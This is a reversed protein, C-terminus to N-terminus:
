NKPLPKLGKAIAIMTENTLGDLLTNVVWYSAGNEEFAVMHLHSGNYYLKYERGRIRRKLTPGELVPADLWNTEQIGWYDFESPGNYVIRVASNGKGGLGYVRIPRLTSLSSSSEHM